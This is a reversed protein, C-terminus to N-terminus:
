IGGFMILLEQAGYVARADCCECRKKRCDPESEFDIAGCELCFGPNELGTNQREVADMIKELTLGDPLTPREKAM